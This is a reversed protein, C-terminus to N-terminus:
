PSPAEDPEEENEKEPTGTAKRLGAAELARAVGRPRREDPLVDPPPAVPAVAGGLQTLSAALAVEARLLPDKKETFAGELEVKLPVGTAADLLVEGRLAVPVRGELFDVRRATDPDYAGGPLDTPPAEEHPLNGSLSLRYRLARRGLVTTEGGNQLALAPGCLQALESALRFSEDRERRAEEGHDGSRERWPAYREKAYTVGHAFVIHKGAESGPASTPDLDATLEFDGGQLQRLQHHETTRVAEGGQRAVSWTVDASFALSGIRSAAEEASLALGEQPRTPDFSVPRPAKASGFIGHRAGEDGPKSCAALLALLSAFGIALRPPAM